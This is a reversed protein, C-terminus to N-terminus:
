EVEKFEGDVLMYFTNEKLVEGDIISAKINLINGNSDREVLVIASNKCAKAIGERGLSCAVSNEKEVIAASRNGTNTAASYDGTNTAASQNGTNTAASYDGTNSEKANNFDAKSFIFDVGAKIIGRLGIEAKIKITKSCRKSDGEKESSVDSAEIECFRSDSPPYYDFVNLPNECFHFGSNCLKAEDESYEKGIEYQFVKGSPTCQLDKNFGKYGKM